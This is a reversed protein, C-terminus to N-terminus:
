DVPTTSPEITQTPVSDNTDESGFFIAYAIFLLLAGLLFAGIQHAIEESRQKSIM